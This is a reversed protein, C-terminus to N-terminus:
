VNQLKGEILRVTEGFENERKIEFEVFARTNLDEVTDGDKGEDDGESVIFTHEFTFRHVYFAGNFFSDYVGDENFVCRFQETSSIMGTPFPVGLLAKFMPLRLDEAEDREYRGSAITKESPIFVYVNFPQVMRQEFETGPGAEFTADSDNQRSKSATVNGLVVFAWFDESLSQETYFRELDAEHSHGSIRAGQVVVSNADFYPDGIPTYETIEYSFQTASIKTATFRGNFGDIRDECAFITGTAPTAAGSDVSFEFNEEDVVKTVAQLGNYEAQDAGVMIVKQNFGDTLDISESTECSAISGVRSLADVPNKVRTNKIFVIQDTVIKHAVETTVTVTTGSFTMATIVLSDSFKDTYLPLIAQLQAIVDNCRM